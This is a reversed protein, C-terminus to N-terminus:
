MKGRVAADLAESTNRDAALRKAELTTVLTVSEGKKIPKVPSTFEWEIYPSGADSIYIQGREGPRWEFGEAGPTDARIVLITDGIVGAIADGDFGLKRGSKAEPDRGVSLTMGDKSRLVSQVPTDGMLRWGEALTTEGPILHAVLSGRVFPTQTITWAGVPFDYGDEVREFRTVTYLRSGTEALTIDRVIRLGSRAIIPSTLRVTNAGVIQATQPAQDAEPPPPWNGKQKFSAIWDDQPWPWPKDGGFNRWSGSTDGQKGLESPNNWLLNTGDIFGYRMIRAIQPVVIVEATGNSIRYANQWGEYPVQEITVRAPTEKAQIIAAPEAAAAPNYNALLNSMTAVAVGVGGIIRRAGNRNGILITKRRAKAM